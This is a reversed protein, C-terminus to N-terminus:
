NLHYAYSTDILLLLMLNIWLMYASHSYYDGTREEEKVLPWSRTGKDECGILKVEGFSKGHLKWGDNMLHRGDMCNRETADAMLQMQSALDKEKAMDKTRQECERM